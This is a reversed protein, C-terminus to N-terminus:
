GLTDHGQFHRGERPRTLEDQLAQKGAPGARLEVLASNGYDAFRSFLHATGGTGYIQGSLQTGSVDPDGNTSLDNNFRGVGVVRLHIPGLDPRRGEQVAQDLEGLKWSGVTLRDGVHIGDEQAATEDVVVEDPAGPLPKRGSVMIPENEGFGAGRTKTSVLLGLRGWGNPAHPDLLGIVHYSGFTTSEVGPLHALESAAERAQHESQCTTIFKTYDQGFSSPDVGPPCSAVAVQYTIPREEYRALATDARREAAFAAGIFGFALGFLVALAVTARWHRRIM